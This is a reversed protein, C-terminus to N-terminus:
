SLNFDLANKITKDMDIYKYNALRWLFYINELWAAEKKYKELIELNEKIEVPYADIDGIWPIEKCIVTKEINYTSSNPYFKKFETIRTYEHDNPYNIVINEQFDKKDYTELKYLTKKYDLKWYKYNFYEDIPWTFYMKEYEIDNIIDKYDSNLVIKINKNDLMKEFMKTYGNKPMWQFKNHPFYRNDRSILVPVRKLVDPNIDEPAIWWQKITYNKFVKEFIYEAVFGLEKNQEKKAKERLENISVKTWYEFYKLLAEEITKALKPSFSLYISNLNFPVPILNWDIFALVKHQFNTFESFNNIYNWVDESDTHFIHPWYKHILIWNEDYYDYCNWWIHDRKEIIMVEEWKEALRQALVIWSPWAWVILNKIKMM